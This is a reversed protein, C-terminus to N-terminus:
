GYLSIICNLEKYVEEAKQNEPVQTLWPLCAFTLECIWNNIQYKVVWFNWQFPFCLLNLIFHNFLFSNYYFYLPFPSDWELKPKGPFKCREYALFLPSDSTLQIWENSLSDNNAFKLYIWQYKLVLINM